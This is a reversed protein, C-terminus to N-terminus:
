SSLLVLEKLGALTGMIVSYIFRSSAEQEIVKHKRYGKPAVPSVRSSRQKAKRAGGVRYAFRYGHYVRDGITVPAALEKGSLRVQSDTPHYGTYIQVKPALLINNGLYVTNCDLITCDFNIYLNDGAFIHCGYDCYFPPRITFNKGILLYPFIFNVTVILLRLPSARICNSTM